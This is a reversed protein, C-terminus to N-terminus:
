FITISRTTIVIEDESYLDPRAMMLYDDQHKEAAQKKLLKADLASKGNPSQLTFMQKTVDSDQAEFGKKFNGKKAWLVGTEAKIKVIEDRDIMDEKPDILTTNFDDIEQVDGNNVGYIYTQLADSGKFPAKYNTKKLEEEAADQLTQYDEKTSAADAAALRNARGSVGLGNSKIKTLNTQLIENRRSQDTIANNKVLAANFQYVEDDGIESALFAEYATKYKGSGYQANKDVKNGYEASYHKNVKNLVEPDIIQANTNKLLEYDTGLGTRFLLWNETAGKDLNKIIAQAEKEAYKVYTKRKTDYYWVEGNSAKFRLVGKNSYSSNGSLIQQRIKDAEAKSKGKTQKAIYDNMNDKQDEAEVYGTKLEKGDSSLVVRKGNEDIASMRGHRDRKSNTIVYNKKGYKVKHESSTSEYFIKNKAYDDKLMVLKNDKTHSVVHYVEKGKEKVLIRGGTTLTGVTEYERVKGNVKLPIIKGRNATDKLQFGTKKYIKQKIASDNPKKVTQKNGNGKFVQQEKKQQQKKVKKNEVQTAVSVSTNQVKTM